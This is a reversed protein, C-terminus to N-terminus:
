FLTQCGEMYEILMKCIIDSREKHNMSQKFLFQGHQIFGMSLYISDNM